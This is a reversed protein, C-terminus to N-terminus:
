YATSLHEDVLRDAVADSDVKYTGNQIAAKLRAVKEENIDPSSKAVEKALAADKARSSISVKDSSDISVESAPAKSRRRSKSEAVESAKESGRTRETSQSNTNTVKMVVEM